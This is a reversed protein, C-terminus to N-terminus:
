QKNNIEDRKDDLTIVTKYYKRQLAKIILRECNASILKQMNDKKVDFITEFITIIDYPSRHYFFSNSGSSIVVNEGKTVDLLLMVNSIFISRKNDDKIFENYIIEFFVGRKIANLIATKKLAFNMKEEFNISIIDIDLDKCAADFLTENRPLVAIIDYSELAKNPNALQHKQDVKTLDLTVRSFLKIKDWEIFNNEVSNIFKISYNEYMTKLDFEKFSNVDNAGLIGGKNVNIAFINYGDINILKIVV